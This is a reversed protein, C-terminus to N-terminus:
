RSIAKEVQELYQRVHERPEIAQAKRLHTLAKKLEGEHVQLRALAVHGDAAHDPLLLVRDYFFVAEEINDLAAYAKALTMLAEGDLPKKDAIPRLIDVAKAAQGQALLLAGEAKALQESISANATNGVFTKLQDLYVQAAQHEGRQMLNHFPRLITEVDSLANKADVASLGSSYSALAHVPMAENLYLDGLLRWTAFRASALQTAVELNAIADQYREESLFANAQLLWYQQEQPRNEILEDMLAIVRGNQGTALLCHTLGRKFDESEPAFLRAQEYATLASAYQERSLLLYALLGYSQADGGGLTIVKRWAEIAPTIQESRTLILALTRWARRFDPMKEIARRIAAEAQSFNQQQYYLNGQLFDFAANSDAGIHRSVVNIARQPDNALLPMVNRFVEQDERSLTPEIKGNVGYSALFRAKFAPSDYGDQLPFPMDAHCLLIGSLWVLLTSSLLSLYPRM